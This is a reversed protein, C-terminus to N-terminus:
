LIECDKLQLYIINGTARARVRIPAGPVLSEVKERQTTYCQGQAFAGVDFIVYFESGYSGVKQVKGSTVVYRDAYKSSAAVENTEFAKIIEPLEATVEPQTPKPQRTDCSLATLLVLASAHCNM